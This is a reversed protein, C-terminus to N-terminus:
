PQPEMVFEVLEEDTLYEMSNHGSWIPRGGDPPLWIRRGDPLDIARALTVENSEVLRDWGKNFEDRTM